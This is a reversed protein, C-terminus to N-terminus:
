KRNFLCLLLTKDDDTRTNLRESNLFNVLYHDESEPNATEQLYEELPKFFPTFPQWDRLRIAVKELGDTSASIFSQEGSIVKIQMEKIVDKSTLFTTENAFEGKDPEFLLQYDSDQLRVVIFGDGIQMAALWYPTAIFVLLTCALDNISYNENNAHNELEQLVQAVVKIFFQEVEPTSLPQSFKKELEEQKNPFKNIESFCKIVTKVALKSGIDSYKASGAGDSVVGVIVDNFIHYCGYDQCSIKQIQHSTGMASRAIAKWGM